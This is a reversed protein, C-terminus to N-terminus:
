CNAEQLTHSVTQALNLQLSDKGAATPFEHPVGGCALFHGRCGAIPGASLGEDMHYIGDLLWKECMSGNM